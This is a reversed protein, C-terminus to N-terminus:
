VCFMWVKRLRRLVFWGAARFWAALRLLRYGLPRYRVWLVGAFWWPGHDHARVRGDRWATTARGLVDALPFPGEDQWQADGRIFLAKGGALRVIRHLVYRETAGPLAIRVLVLDGVKLAAPPEMEVVDRDCLFPLMSSGTVTMRVRQGRELAARVVPMLERSPVIM